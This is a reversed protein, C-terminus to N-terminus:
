SAPEAPPHEAPQPPPQDPRPEAMAHIREESAHRLRMGVDPILMLLLFISMLAAPITLVFKWNAEWWIHMFCLIVLLAKTCSVAMMLMRSEAPSFNARWWNSYTL